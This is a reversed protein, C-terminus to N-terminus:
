GNPGKLRARPRWQNARPPAAVRFLLFFLFTQTASLRAGSYPLMTMEYTQKVDNSTFTYPIAHLVIFNLTM